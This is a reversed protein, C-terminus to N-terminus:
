AVLADWSWTTIWPFNLLAAGAVTVAGVALYGVVTRWSALALLTGLALAVAVLAAVVLMVPAFATAFRSKSM